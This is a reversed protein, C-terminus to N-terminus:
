AENSSLTGADTLQVRGVPSFPVDNPWRTATLRNRAIWTECVQNSQNGGLIRYADAREGLYLGVHAGEPRSFVMIAGPSPVLLKQGWREFSRARLLDFGTGSPLQSAQLIRNMWIACWAQDDNNYWSPVGIDRAWRM